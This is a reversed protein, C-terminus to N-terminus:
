IRKNKFKNRFNYIINKIYTKNLLLYVIAIISLLTYRIIITNYLAMFGASIIVMILLILAMFRNDYIDSKMVYKNILYHIILLALYGALTTYAAAVFGYKPIFFYNLVINLIAAFATGMSTYGTRKLTMQVNVYHTYIYQCFVGLVIPPVAWIGRSYSAGGLIYVAEPAIAICGIGFFCEATLFPKVKERILRYEGNNYSDHFWPLWAENAAGIVINILMAYSYVLSYIGTYSSGCYKTIMLRDSQALINLALTHIVLPASM